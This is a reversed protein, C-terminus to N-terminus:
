LPWLTTNSFGNYYKDYLGQEIFVPEIIFDKAPIFSNEWEQSSFDVSGVWIKEDFQKTGPNKKEFYSKLASVLGGSNQRLVPVNGDRDMFYPLRTSVIILRSM